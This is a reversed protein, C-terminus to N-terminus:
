CQIGLESGAYRRLHWQLVRNVPNSLDRGLVELLHEPLVIEERKLEDSRLYHIVRADEAKVGNHESHQVDNALNYEAGLAIVRMKAKLAILTAAIQCRMHSPLVALLRDQTQWIQTRFADLASRTLVIFGLNFYPPILGNDGSVDMSHRYLHEADVGFAEMLRPWIDDNTKIQLTNTEPVPPPYHAMHGCITAQTPDLCDILADIDKVVVTDADSLVIVDADTNPVYRYDATGHIGYREFIAKPVCTWRVNRGESWTNARTVEEVSCDDGVIVHVLAAVYAPGHQRLTSEFFHVQHFFSRTPSIPIRFELKRM